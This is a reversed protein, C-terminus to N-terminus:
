LRLNEKKKRGKEEEYEQEEDVEKIAEVDIDRSNRMEILNDGEASISLDENNNSNKFFIKANFILSRINILIEIIMSLAKVLVLLLGISLIIWGLILKTDISLLNEQLNNLCEISGILLLMILLMVETFLTLQNIKDVEYPKKFFLLTTIFLSFFIYLFIQYLAYADLFVAAIIWFFKRMMFFIQFNRKFFAKKKLLDFLPLYKKDIEPDELDLSSTNLFWCSFIVFVSLYIMCFLAMISNMINGTSEFQFNIFQLITAFTFPVFTVLAVRLLASYEMLEDLNSCMNVFWGCMRRESLSSVLTRKLIKVIFYLVIILGCFILAFFANQIFETSIKEERFSYPVAKNEIYGLTSLQFFTLYENKLFNAPNLARFFIVSNYPIEVYVYLILNLIQLMEVYLWFISLSDLLLLPFFAFLLIIMIYSLTMDIINFLYLEEDNYHIFENITITPQYSIMTIPIEHLDKILNPQVFNITFERSQFSVLLFIEFKYTQNDSALTFNWTFDILENLGAITLNAIKENKFDIKQMKKSFKLHIEVKQYFSEEPIEPILFLCYPPRKDYCIKGDDQSCDFFAEITCQSSCGDGSITNGDDCQENGERIHNGCVSSNNTSNELLRSNKSLNELKLSIFEFSLLINNIFSHMLFTEPNKFTLYTELLPQSSELYQKQAITLSSIYLSGPNHSFM